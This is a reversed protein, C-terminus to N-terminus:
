DPLDSAALAERIALITTAANAPYRKRPDDLSRMMESGSHHLGILDWNKDFVPSGSSGPETPAKYHLREDDVAVLANGRMSLELSRGAPHGIVYVYPDRENESPLREAVEIPEVGFDADVALRLVSADLGKPPSTWLLDLKDIKLPDDDLGAFRTFCAAADKARLAGPFTGDSIVHGNTVLVLEPGLKEALRDGPVLFGTGVPDGYRDTIMCVFRAVSLGRWVIEYRIAQEPGFVKELTALSADLDDIAPVITEVDAGMSLQSNALALRVASEPALGWVEDLQRQLSGLEFPTALEADTLAKTLLAAAPEDGDALRLEVEAARQWVTRLDPDTADVAGQVKQAVSRANPTGAPLTVGEQEARKLLAMLNTGVWVVDAEPMEYADGYWKVAKRLEQENNFDVFRQKAIRGLLGTAEDVQDEAGDALLKHLIQEAGSLAKEEILAQAYRRVMEPEASGDHTILTEVLAIVSAWSKANQGLVVAASIDSSTLRNQGYMEIMRRRLDRIAAADAGELAKNWEDGLPTTVFTM